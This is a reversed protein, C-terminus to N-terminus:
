IGVVRDGELKGASLSRQEWWARMCCEYDGDAAAIDHRADRRLQWLIRLIPKRNIEARSMMLTWAEELPSMTSLSQGRAIM